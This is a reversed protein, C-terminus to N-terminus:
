NRICFGRIMDFVHPLAAYTVSKGYGTPLSSPTREQLLILYRKLRRVNLMKTIASELEM